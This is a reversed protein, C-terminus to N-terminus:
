FFFLFFLDMDIEETDAVTEGNRGNYFGAM